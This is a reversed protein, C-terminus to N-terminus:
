RKSPTLRGKHYLVLAGAVLLGGGIALLAFLGVTVFTTENACPGYACKGQREVIFLVAQLAKLTGVAVGALGLLISAAFGKNRTVWRVPPAL